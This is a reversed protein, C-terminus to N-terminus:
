SERRAGSKATVTHRDIWQEIDRERFLVRTGLKVYPIRKQSVWTDITYVSLGLYAALQKKTLFQGSRQM